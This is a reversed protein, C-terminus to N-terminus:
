NSDTVAGPTQTEVRRKDVTTEARRKKATTEEQRKEATNKEATTEENKKAVSNAGTTATCLFCVVSLPM